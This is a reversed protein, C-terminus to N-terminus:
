KCNVRFFNCERQEIQENSIKSLFLAVAKVGDGKSIENLAKKEKMKGMLALNGDWTFGYGKIAKGNKRNERKKARYEKISEERSIQVRNYLEIRENIADTIDQLERGALIDEEIWVNHAAPPNKGGGWHCNGCKRDFFSSGKRILDNENAFSTTIGFLCVIMITVLHILYSKM